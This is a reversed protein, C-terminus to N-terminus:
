FICITYMCTFYFYFKVVIYPSKNNITKILYEHELFWICKYIMHSSNRLLNLTCSINRKYQAEFSIQVLVELRVERCNRYRWGDYSEFILLTNEIMCFRLLVWMHTLCDLMYTLSSTSLHFSLVHYEERNCVFMYSLFIIRGAKVAVYSYIIDWLLIYTLLPPVCLVSM